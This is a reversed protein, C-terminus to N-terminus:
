KREDIDLSPFDKRYDRKPANRIDAIGRWIRFAGYAIMLGGLIYAFGEPLQMSGFYKIYIIMAGIFLYFIGMAIHMTARFKSYTSHSKNREEYSMVSLQKVFKNLSPCTGM